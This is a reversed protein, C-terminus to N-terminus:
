KEEVSDNKNYKKLNLQRAKQSVASATRKLSGAIEQYSQNKYNERLFVIDKETWAHRKSQNNQRSVKQRYESSKRLGLLSAKQDISAKTKNLLKSLEHNNHDPYLETLTAIEKSTWTSHNRKVRETHYNIEASKM